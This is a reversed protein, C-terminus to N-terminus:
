WHKVSLAPIRSNEQTASNHELAQNILSARNGTEGLAQMVLSHVTWGSETSQGLRYHYRGGLVGLADGIQHTATFDAKATATDPGTRNM